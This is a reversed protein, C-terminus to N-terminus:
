GLANQYSKEIKNMEPRSDPLEARIILIVSLSDPIRM